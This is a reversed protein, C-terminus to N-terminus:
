CEGTLLCRSCYLPHGAPVGALLATYCDNSIFGTPVVPDPVESCILVMRLAAKPPM